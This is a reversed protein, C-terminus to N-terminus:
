NVKMKRMKPIKFGTLYYTENRYKRYGQDRYVHTKTQKMQINCIHEQICMNPDHLSNKRLMIETLSIIYPSVEQKINYGQNNEMDNGTTLDKFSQFRIM